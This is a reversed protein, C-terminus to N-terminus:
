EEFVNKVCLARNPSSNTVDTQCLHIVSFTMTGVVTSSVTSPTGKLITATKVVGYHYVEGPLSSVGPGLRHPLPSDVVRSFDLM